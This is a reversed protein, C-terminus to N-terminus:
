CRTDIIMGIGGFDFVHNLARHHMMIVSARIIGLLIAM